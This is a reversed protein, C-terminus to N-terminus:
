VFFEDGIFCLLVVVWYLIGFYLMLKDFINFVYEFFVIFNLLLIFCVLKFIKMFFFEDVLIM